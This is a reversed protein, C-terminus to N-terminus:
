RRDLRFVLADKLWNEDQDLGYKDAYAEAVRRREAPDTVPRALLRYLTEGVRLRVRPDQRVYDSWNTGEPGTGIYVHPGIGVAWINVSYPDRPRTELQFTEEDELESWDDPPPAVEGSLEGGAFVIFPESCGALVILALSLALLRTMVHYRFRPNRAM